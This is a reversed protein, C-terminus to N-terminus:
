AIVVIGVVNAALLNFLEMFVIRNPHASRRSTFGFFASNSIQPRNASLWARCAGAWLVERGPARTRQAVAMEVAMGIDM